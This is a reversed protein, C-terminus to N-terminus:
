GSTRNLIGESAARAMQVCENPEGQTLVRRGDVRGRSIGPSGNWHPEIAWPGVIVLHIPFAERVIRGADDCALVPEACRGPAQADRVQVYTARVTVYTFSCLDALTSRAPRAATRSKLPRRRVTISLRLRRGPFSRLRSSLSSDFSARGWHIPFRADDCALATATPNSGM